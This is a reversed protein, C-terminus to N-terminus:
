ENKKSAFALFGLGTCFGPSEEGVYFDCITAALDDQRFQEYKISVNNFVLWPTFIHVEPALEETRKAAAQQLVDGESTSNCKRLVSAEYQYILGLKTARTLSYLM